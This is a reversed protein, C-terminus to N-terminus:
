DRYASLWRTLGALHSIATTGYITAVHGIHRHFAQLLDLAHAIIAHQIGKHAARIAGVGIRAQDKVGAAIQISRCDAATRTVSACHEFDTASAGVAHQIEERATRITGVGIRAQDKVGTAIQVARSPAAARAVKAGHEFDTARAGVARQM